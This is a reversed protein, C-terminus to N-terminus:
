RVRRRSCRSQQSNKNSRGSHQRRRFRCILRAGNKLAEFLRSTAFVEGESAVEVAEYEGPGFDRKM